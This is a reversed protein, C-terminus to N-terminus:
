CLAYNSGRIKQGLTTTQKQYVSPGGLLSTFIDDLVTSEALEAMIEKYWYRVVNLNNPHSGFSDHITIVPFPPHQLMQGLIRNLKRLYDDTLLCINDPTLWPVIVVDVMRTAYYRDLYVQIHPDEGFIGRYTPHTQRELLEATIWDHVASVMDADYNCRRVISRLVYADVSHVVNAANSLGREQGENERYTYTFTSHDLEDVEIRTQVPQMVRIKVHFNDPLLWDHSLAWSNWSDILHQLLEFAGPAVDFCADKFCQLEVTGDGFLKEPVAKSGYCSTMVGKKIEERPFTVGVLGQDMLRVNMRDNVATYADSRVDPDVMGTARAGNECGTLASMIQIGSCVADLAVLHGIERGAQADRIAMCAKLYPRQADAQDALNELEHLHQNAWAIREEFTKKDLGYANAVDILLYEWGTFKKM